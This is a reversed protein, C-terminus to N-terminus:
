VREDGQGLMDDVLVLAAMHEADKSTLEAIPGLPIRWDEGHVRVAVVIAVTADIRLDPLAQLARGLAALGVVAHVAIPRLDLAPALGVWAQRRARRHPGVESM